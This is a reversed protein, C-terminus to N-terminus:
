SPGAGAEAMAGCRALASARGSIGRDAVSCCHQVVGTQAPRSAFGPPRAIYRSLVAAKRGHSDSAAADTVHGTLRYLPDRAQRFLARALGPLRAKTTRPDKPPEDLAVPGALAAHRSKSPPQMCAVAPPVALHQVKPHCDPYHRPTPRRRLRKTVGVDNRGEREAQSQRSTPRIRRAM